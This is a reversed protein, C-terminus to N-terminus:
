TEELLPLLADLLVSLDAAEMVDATRRLVKLAPHGPPLLREATRKFERIPILVHSRRRSKSGIGKPSM